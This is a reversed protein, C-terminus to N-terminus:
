SANPFRELDPQPDLEFRISDLVIRLGDVVNQRLALRRLGTTAFSDVSSVNRPRSPGMWHQGDGKM